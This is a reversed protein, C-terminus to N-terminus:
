LIRLYGLGIRGDDLPFQGIAWLPDKTHCVGISMPYDCHHKPLYGEDVLEWKLGDCADSVYTRWLYNEWILALQLFLKGEVETILIGEMHTGEDILPGEVRSGNLWNDDLNRMLYVAGGRDATGGKYYYRREGNPMIWCQGHDILSTDKIKEGQLEVHGGPVTAESPCLARTQPALPTRKINKTFLGTPYTAKAVMIHEPELVEGWQPLGKEKTSNLATYFLYINNGDYHCDPTFCGTGDHDVSKNGRRIVKIPKSWNEAISPDSLDSCWSCSIEGLFGDNQPSKVHTFYVWYRDGIHLIESPDRVSGSPDSIIMNHFKFVPYSVTEMDYKQSLMEHFRHREKFSPLRTDFFVELCKLNSSLSFESKHNSIIKSDVSIFDVFRGNLFVSLHQNCEYTLYLINNKQKLLESRDIEVKFCNDCFTLTPKRVDSAFLKFCFAESFMSALLEDFELGESCEFKFAFFWEKAFAIKNALMSWKAKVDKSFDLLQTREILNIREM